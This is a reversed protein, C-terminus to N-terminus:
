LCPSFTGCIIYNIIAQFRRFREDSDRVKRGSDEVELGSDEVELGSDGPIRSLRLGHAMLREAAEM